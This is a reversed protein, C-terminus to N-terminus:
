GKRFDRGVNAARWIAGGSKAAAVAVDEPRQDEFLISEQESNANDVRAGESPTGADMVIIRDAWNAGAPRHCAIVVLRGGCWGSLRLLLRRETSVDLASTAEDLLLVPRNQLVARAIALRQLEGGSLGAGLPGLETEWGKPLRQLVETFCAVWAAYEVEKITSDPSGHRINEWITGRFMLPDQPVLSIAQRLSRVSITRIDRGDVQIVGADVNYLRPILKLLSSKGSGSEGIIAVKYRSSLELKVRDLAFRNASYAFTVDNFTISTPPSTLPSANPTDHIDAVEQDIAVLRRVSAGVRHLRAFLDVATELPAFLSGIYGYFAVLGGATLSGEIVRAGGYGLILATGAGVMCMEFLSYIQENKRQTLIRRMTILALRKYRRGLRDECGLLQIQIAGALIENLLSSQQGAADRLQEAGVRLIGKYRRRVYAFVPMLPVVILALHWDLFAMACLTMIVQASMRLVTPLVTSGLEGVISVDQELRQILDGIPQRSYFAASLTQLHKLLRIRLRFTLRQVGIGNALNGCSVLLVRSAFLAFMLVSGYILGNWQREPLVHDILWKMVLPPGMM